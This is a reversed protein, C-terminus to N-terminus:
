ANRTVFKIRHQKWEILNTTTTTSSLNRLNELNQTEKTDLRYTKIDTSAGM